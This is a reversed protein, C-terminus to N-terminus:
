ENDNTPENHKEMWKLKFPIIKDDFKQKTHSKNLHLFAETGENVMEIYFDEIEDDTMNITEYQSRAIEDAYYNIIMERDFNVFLKHCAIELKQGQTLNKPDFTGYKELLEKNLEQCSQEYGDFYDDLAQEIKKKM